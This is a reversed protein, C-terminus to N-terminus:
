GRERDYASHEAMPGDKERVAVGGEGLRDHEARLKKLVRQLEIKHDGRLIDRDRRAKEIYGSIAFIATEVEALSLEMPEREAM